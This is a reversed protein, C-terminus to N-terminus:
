KVIISIVDIDGGSNYVSNGVQFVLFYRGVLGTVDVTMSLDVPVSEPIEGGSYQVYQVADDPNASNEVSTLLVKASCSYRTDSYYSHAIAKVEVTTEKGTLEIPLVARSYVNYASGARMYINLVDGVFNFAKTSNGEFTFAEMGYDLPSKYVKAEGTKLERNGSYFTKGALVDAETATALALKKDTLGGLPAAKHKYEM